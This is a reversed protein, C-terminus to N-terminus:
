NSSWSRGTKQIWRVKTGLRCLRAKCSFIERHINDELRLLSQRRFLGELEIRSFEHQGQLAEQIKQSLDYTILLAVCNKVGDASEVFRAPGDTFDEPEATGFKTYVKDRLSQAEEFTLIETNESDLGQDKVGIEEVPGGDDNAPEEVTLPSDDTTELAGSNRSARRDNSVDQENDDIAAQADVPAVELPEGNPEPSRPKQTIDSHATTSSVLALRIGSDDCPVEAGDGNLEQAEDLRETKTKPKYLTRLDRKLNSFTKM